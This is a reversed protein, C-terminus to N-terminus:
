TINSSFPRQHHELNQDLQWHRCHRVQGTVGRVVELCYDALQGAELSSSVVEQVEGRFCRGTLLGVHGLPHDGAPPHKSNM